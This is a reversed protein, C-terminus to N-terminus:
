EFNLGLNLGSLFLGHGGARGWQGKLGLDFEDKNKFPFIFDFKIIGSMGFHDFSNGFVSQEGLVYMPAVGLGASFFVSHRLSWALDINQVVDIQVVNLRQEFVSSTRKFRMWEADLEFHGRYYFLDNVVKRGIAVGPLDQKFDNANPLLSPVKYTLANVSLGLYFLKEPRQESKKEAIKSQNGILIEPKTEPVSYVKVENKKAAYINSSILFIFVILARM